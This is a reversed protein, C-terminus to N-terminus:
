GFHQAIEEFHRCLAVTETAEHRCKALAPARVHALDHCQAGGATFSDGDLGKGEKRDQGGHGDGNIPVEIENRRIGVEAQMPQLIKGDLHGVPRYQEGAQEVVEALLTRGLNCGLAAPGVAPARPPRLLEADREAEGGLVREVRQLM